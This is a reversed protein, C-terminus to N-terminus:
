SATTNRTPLLNEHGDIPSAKYYPSITQLARIISIEEVPLEMQKTLSAVIESLTHSNLNGEYQTLVDLLLCILKVTQTKYSKQTSSGDRQLMDLQSEQEMLAVLETNTAIDRAEKASCVQNRGLHKAIYMAEDAQTLLEQESTGDQPFTSFGLSATILLGGEVDPIAVPGDAITYRIREAVISAAQADTEPLLIIFEEGGFRGVTDSSRLVRRARKGIEQLVTDGATHGYTDNVRKFCDVDFFLLSFLHNYRQVRALEKSFQDMIARHNPLGTLADTLAQQQITKYAANLAQHAQELEIARDAQIVAKKTAVTSITSFLTVLAIIIGSGVFFAGGIFGWKTYAILQSQREIFIFWGMFIIALLGVLLPGWAPLVTGAIVPFILLMSWVIFIIFTSNFPQTVDIFLTAIGLFYIILFLLSSLILHGRQNIWLIIMFIIFLLINTCLAITGTHALIALSLFPLQALANVLIIISFLQRKRQKERESITTLPAHVPTMTAFWWANLRQLLQKM